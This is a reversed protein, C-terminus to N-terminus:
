EAGILRNFDHLESEVASKTFFGGERQTEFFGKGSGFSGMFEEGSFMEVRWDPVPIGYWPTKWGALHKNVVQVIKDIQDAKEITRVERSHNLVVIKTVKSFKSFKYSQAAASSSWSSQRKGPRTNQTTVKGDKSVILTRPEAFPFVQSDIELAKGHDVLRMKHENVEIDITYDKSSNQIIKVETAGFRHSTTMSAPGAQPIQFNATYINNRRKEDIPIGVFIITLKKATLCFKGDKAKAEYNTMQELLNVPNPTSGELNPTSGQPGGQKSCSTALVALLLFSWNLFRFM